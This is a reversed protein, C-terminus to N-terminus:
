KDSAQGWLEVSGAVLAEFVKQVTPTVFNEDAVVTGLEDGSSAASYVIRADDTLWGGLPDFRVSKIRLHAIVSCEEPTPVFTFGHSSLETRLLAIHETVVQARKLEDTWLLNAHGDINDPDSTSRDDVSLYFRSSALLNSLPTPGRQLEVNAGCGVLAPLLVALVAFRSTAEHV